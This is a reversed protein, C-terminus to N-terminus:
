TPAQSPGAHRAAARDAAAAERALRPTMWSLLQPV